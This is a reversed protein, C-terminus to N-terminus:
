YIVLIYLFIYCNHFRGLFFILYIKIKLYKNLCYSSFYDDFVSHREFQCIFHDTCSAWSKQYIGIIHRGLKYLLKIINESVYKCRLLQLAKIERMVNVPIGDEINKILIKKLAVERGTPLHKAKFVLGHAGEGIRRIVSYNSVECNM